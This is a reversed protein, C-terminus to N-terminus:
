TETADMTAARTTGRSAKTSPSGDGSTNAAPVAASRITTACRVLRCRRTRPASDRSHHGPLRSKPKSMFFSDAIYDRAKGFAARTYSLQYLVVKGLNPDGTRARDGAETLRLRPPAVDIVAAYGLPLASTQLVEM